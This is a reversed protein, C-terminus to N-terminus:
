SRMTLMIFLIENGAKETEGVQGSHSNKLGIGVQTM